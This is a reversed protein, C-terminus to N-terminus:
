TFIGNAIPKHYLTETLYALDADLVGRAIFDLIIQETGLPNGTFCSKLLIGVKHVDSSTDDLKPMESILDTDSAALRQLLKTFEVRDEHPGECPLLEGLQQLLGSVAQTDEPQSRAFRISEILAHLLIGNTASFKAYFLLGEVDQRIFDRDREYVFDTAVENADNIVHTYIELAEDYHRSGVALVFQLDALFWSGEQGLDTLRSSQQDVFAAAAGYGSSLYIDWTDLVIGAVVTSDNSELPDLNAYFPYLMAGRNRKQLLAPSVGKEYAIDAAQRYANLDYRAAAITTRAIPGDISDPFLQEILHLHSEYEVPTSSRIVLSPIYQVIELPYTDFLVGDIENVTDRNASYTERITLLWTMMATRDGHMAPIMIAPHIETLRRELGLRHANDLLNTISSELPVRQADESPPVYITKPPAANLLSRLLSRSIRLKNDRQESLEAITQIGGVRGANLEFLHARGSEDVTLDIGALSLPQERAVGAAAETLKGVLMTAVSPDSLYLGLDEIPIARADRAMNIPTGWTGVRIYMGLLTGHSIIARVNWDLREGTAPDILPWSKIREEVIPEYGREALFAFTNKTLEPSADDGTILVGRGLSERSPKIVVNDTSSSGLFAETPIRTPLAVSTTQVLEGLRRKDNCARVTEPAYFTPIGLGQCQKLISPDVTELADVRIPTPLKGYVVQGDPLVMTGSTVVLEAPRSETAAIIEANKASTSIYIINARTDPEASVLGLLESGSFTSVTDIAITPLSPDILTSAMEEDILVATHGEATATGLYKDLNAQVEDALLGTLSADTDHEHFLGRLQDISEIRSYDHSGGPALEYPTSM